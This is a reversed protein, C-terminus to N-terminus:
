YHTSYAIQVFFYTIKKNLGEGAPLSSGRGTGSRGHDCMAISKTVSKVRDSPKVVIRVTTSQKELHTLNTGKLDSGLAKSVATASYLWM